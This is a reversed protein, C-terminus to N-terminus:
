SVIVVFAYECVETAMHIAGGHLVYSTQDDLNLNLQPHLADWGDPAAWSDGALQSIFDLKLCCDCNNTETVCMCVFVCACVNINVVQKAFQDMTTQIPATVNISGMVPRVFEEM